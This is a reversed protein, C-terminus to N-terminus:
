MSFLAAPRVDGEDSESEANLADLDTAGRDARKGKKSRYGDGVSQSKARNKPEKLVPVM